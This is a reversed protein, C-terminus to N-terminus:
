ESATRSPRCLYLPNEDLGLRQRSAPDRQEDLVIAEMAFGAATVPEVAQHEPTQLLLVGDARLVRHLEALARGLEPVVDLVHACVVTDFSSPPLDLERVDMQRDALHHDLDVALWSRARDRYRAILCREPGVHLVDGAVIDLNRDLWLCLQRHREYSGCGPCYLTPYRVFRRYSSGCCACTVEDGHLALAVVRFASATALPRFRPPVAKRAIVRGHHLVGAPYNGRPFATVRAGKRRKSARPTSSSPSAEARGALAARDAASRCRM